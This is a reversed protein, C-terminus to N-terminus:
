LLLLTLTDRLATYDTKTLRSRRERLQSKIKDKLEFYEQWLKQLRLLSRRCKLCVTQAINESLREELLGEIISRNSNDEGM